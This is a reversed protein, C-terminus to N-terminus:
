ESASAAATGRRREELVTLLSAAAQRPVAPANPDPAPPDILERNPDIPTRLGGLFALLQGRARESLRMFADRADRAAGGHAEIAQSLVSARGDHLYPATDAVGWLRATTFEANSIEGFAFSEALGEGMDHRKLDAFLPVFVGDEGPIREFGVEALDITAYVNRWPDHPVEPHSLPLFRSRTKLVPVHCGTCGTDAFRALGRQGAAGLPEVFPVPNTVDFVHLASMDVVSVENVVGDGDADAHEGVVEVPQMGFHFRMAVRDFDRMSFNEGKRGFPRVVLVEEPRRGANNEFGIGEVRLAVGGGELTEIHGFDVGHTILPTISGAAAARAAGLARQLDRTMEKALLEVGGGGFLFPPNAYRGNFDAVGDPYLTLDPDHGSVYNVRVDSSDAVDLLSPMILANNVIGGVGGIGLVPPRTSRKVFGHCENCSQADLGNIRLTMGNGQLTPRDGPTIAGTDGHRGQAPGDGYGDFTNFPTTFVELGRRRVSDLTVSGDRLGEQLREMTMPNAPLAPGDQQALVAAAFAAACMGLIAAARSPNGSEM